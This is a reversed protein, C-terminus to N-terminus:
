GSHILPAIELALEPSPSNAQPTVECVFRKTFNDATGRYSICAWVHRHSGHMLYVSILYASMLDVGVLHRGILRMSM